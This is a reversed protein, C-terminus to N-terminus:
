DSENSRERWVLWESLMLALSLTALVAVIVIMTESLPSERCPCALAYSELRETAVPGVFVPCRDKAILRGDSFM